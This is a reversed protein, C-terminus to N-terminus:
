PVRRHIAVCERIDVTSEYDLLEKAKSVDAHTHRSEGDRPEEDDSDVAADTAAIVLHALEKIAVNGTSGINVVTGDM